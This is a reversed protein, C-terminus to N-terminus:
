MLKTKVVSLQITAEAAQFTAVAYRKSFHTRSYINARPASSITAKSVSCPTRSYHPVYALTTSAGLLMKVEKSLVKMCKETLVGVSDEKETGRATDM